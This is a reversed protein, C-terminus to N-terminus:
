RNRSRGQSRQQQRQQWQQDLKQLAEAVQQSLLPVTTTTVGDPKLEFTGLTVSTQPTRTSETAHARLIIQYKGAKMLPIEVLDSQGLWGGSTRGLDWRAFSFSRGTKQDTGSLSSPYGTDGQLLASIRVRRTPGCLARAGPVLVMAPRMTELYVDHQGPGFQRKLPVFGRGFFTLEATQHATILEAKGNQWRFGAESWSGDAHQLRAHIPGDLDMPQGGQDLARLRYVHLANSLDLPELRPDRNDGPKVFFGEIRAMPARLGRMKVLLTYAGPRLPEIRFRGGRRMSVRDSRTEGRRRSEEVPELTMTVARDPLWEPLLVRGGLIGNRDLQVHLNQNPEPLDVTRAFHKDTDAKVRIKGPPMTAEVVFTGDAGTRTRLNNLRRWSERPGPSGNSSFRVSRSAEVQLRLENLLVRETRGRNRAGSNGNGPRLQEITITAGAVPQGLDDVVVGACLPPLPELRIDGLDVRTGGPWPPLDVIAGLWRKPADDGSVPHERRFEIRWRAAEERGTLVCDWRGDDITDITTTTHIQDDKWITVSTRSGGIGNGTLDLLRGALVAHQPLPRIVVAATEGRESPGAASQSYSARRDSPYRAYIRLPQGVQAFPLQVPAQGVPKSVSQHLLSRSSPFAGPKRARREAGFGIRASSLLPKGSHCTLRVEVAGLDPVELLVPEDSAPRGAFETLTLPETPLCAMAAFRERFGEPQGKAAARRLLQFHRVLVRGAQDTSGRWITDTDNSKPQHRLAVPITAPTSDAFRAVIEVQEDTQMTLRHSGDRAVTLYGFEGEKQAAVVWRGRGRPLLVEGRDDTRTRQGFREAADWRTLTRSRDNARRRYETEDFYYVTAGTAPAGSGHLVLLLPGPEDPLPAGDEREIAPDSGDDSAHGVTASALEGTATRGASGPGSAAASGGPPPPAVDGPDLWWSAALGLVAIGLLAIVWRM